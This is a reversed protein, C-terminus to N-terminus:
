HKFGTVTNGQLHLAKDRFFIDGGNTGIYLSKGSIVAYEFIYSNVPAFDCIIIGKTDAKPIDTLHIRSKIIAPCNKDNSYNFSIDDSPNVAVCQLEIKDSYKKLLNYFIHPIKDIDKEFILKPVFQAKYREYQSKKFYLAFPINGYFSNNKINKIEDIELYCIDEKNNIQNKDVLDTAVKSFIFNIDKMYSQAIKFLKDRKDLFNHVLKLEQLLKGENFFKTFFGTKKLFASIDAPEYEFDIIFRKKPAFIDFFMYIDKNNYTQFINTKRTKYILSSAFDFNKVINFINVFAFNIKLSIMQGAMAFLALIEQFREDTITNFDLSHKTQELEDLYKDVEDAKIDLLKIDLPRLKKKNEKAFVSSAYNMNLVDESGGMTNYIFRMNSLNVFLKGAILNISPSYTKFGAHIYLPNLIDPIKNIISSALPSLTEPLMESLIGKSYLTKDHALNSNFLSLEVSSLCSPVKRQDFLLHDDYTNDEEISHIYIKDSVSFYCLPVFDINKEINSFADAIKAVSKNDLPIEGKLLRINDKFIGKLILFECQNGLVYYFGTNGMFHFFGKFSEESSTRSFTIGLPELKNKINKTIM